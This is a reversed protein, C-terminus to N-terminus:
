NLVAQRLSQVEHAPLDDMTVIDGAQLNPALTQAIWARLVM